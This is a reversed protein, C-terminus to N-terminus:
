VAHWKNHGSQTHKTREHDKLEEETLSLTHLDGIDNAVTTFYDVFCNAVKIQDQIISGNFELNIVNNDTGQAKSDLFPKFVKFFDWPNNGSSDTKTKWYDKIAQRSLKTARNRWMNKNILNEQSPDKAFKRTYKRKMRIAIKWKPTMYEVDRSRVRLREQPVHNDLIDNALKSWYFYRDDVSDFIEGVHWPAVSLNRVLEEENVNKFSWFLMVKSPYHIANERMVAYVMAHDSLGPDYVNNEKFLEPKNTLIVDILTQITGTIRTPKSILCSLDHIDELDRLIKDEREEPKLRNLNLDGTIIVVQKQSMAWTVIDTLDNELRLYYDMGTAKPPRYLGMIVVDHKGFKSEIVLAELTTFTRPLKLKKSSLRSSFHALVRGGHKTRDKRFINYGDVRFQSCPYSSDIKTETLFVVHAKFDNVSMKLEEFKNQLSNINLHMILLSGNNKQRKTITCSSPDNAHQEHHTESFRNTISVNGNGEDLFLSEFSTNAFGVM